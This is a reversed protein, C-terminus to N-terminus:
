ALSAAAALLDTPSGTPYQLWELAATEDHFAEIEALSAQRALDMFGTILRFDRGPKSLLAIRSHALYPNKGILYDRAMALDHQDLSDLSSERQDVLVAPRVFSVVATALETLVWQFRVLSAEGYMTVRFHPPSELLNITWYM